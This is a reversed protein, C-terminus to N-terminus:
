LEVSTFGVELDFVGLDDHVLRLPHITATLQVGVASQYAIRKGALVDIGLTTGIEGNFLSKEAGSDLHAEVDVAVTSDEPNSARFMLRPVRNGFDDYAYEFAHDYSVDPM